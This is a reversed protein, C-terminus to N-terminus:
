ASLTLSIVSSLKFKRTKTSNQPQFLIETSSRVNVEKWDSTSGGSRYDRSAYLVQLRTPAFGLMSTKQITMQSVKSRKIERLDEVDEDKGKFELFDGLVYKGKLELKDWMPATSLIAKLKQNLPEEQLEKKGRFAGKMWGSFSGKHEPKLQMWQDYTIVESPFIGSDITRFKPNPLVVKCSLYGAPLGVGRQELYSELVPILQKTEEVPDPLTKTKHGDDCVWSGDSNISVFGKLNKVSIVLVEEENVVVLDINQRSGTDADPIRLGIYAKGSYLKEFRSAVAFIANFDSTEVEMIDDEGSFFLRFIGYVILGGLITVWM